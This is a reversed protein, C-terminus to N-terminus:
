GLEKYSELHSQVKRFTKAVGDKSLGALVQKVAQPQRRAKAILSAQGLEISTRETGASIVSCVNRVLIGKGRLVPDPVQLVEVKGTRQHQLIQKM